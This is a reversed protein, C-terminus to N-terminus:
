LGKLLNDINTPEEDAWKVFNFLTDGNTLFCHYDDMWFIYNHDKTPKDYYAYLEGNEDRALWEYGLVKLAKLIEIEKDILKM